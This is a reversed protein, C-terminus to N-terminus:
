LAHGGRQAASKEPAAPTTSPKKGNKPADSVADSAGAPASTSSDPIATSMDIGARKQYDRVAALSATLVNMEQTNQINLSRLQTLEKLWSQTAASNPDFYQKVAGEATNLDSAYVEGSRQMLAMRADMLRLRLNERVFFVQDPSMLMSDNNNLHRIEVMSKLSQVTSQWARQWWSANPNVATPAASRKGAQLNSDIALPLGSVATELRNLRLSASAVDLYPHSRLNNLDQSIAQKIPLLQPQDFRALRNNLNDLVGVAVPVNGSIVLQQAALNLTAEVEDVLWDVRNKVLEQYAKNTNDLEDGQARTQQQLEALQKSLEDVKTLSNQLLAANKGEGLTAGDIKQEVSLEQTKLVNQGQVFLFGSAGLALISLVLAGLAIGKGASQKIVVPAAATGASAATRNPSSVEAMNMQKGTSSPTVDRHTAAPQAAAAGTSSPAESAAAPTGTASAAGEGGHDHATQNSAAAAGVTNKAAASPEPLTVQGQTDVLMPTSPSTNERNDQDANHQDSM